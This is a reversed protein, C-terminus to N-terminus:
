YLYKPKERYFKRIAQQVKGCQKKECQQYAQEVGYFDQSKKFKVMCKLHDDFTMKKSNLNYYDCANDQLPM